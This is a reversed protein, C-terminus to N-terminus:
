AAKRLPRVLRKSKARTPATVTQLIEVAKEPGGVEDVAAALEAAVDHSLHGERQLRQRIAEAIWPGVKKEPSLPAVTEVTM